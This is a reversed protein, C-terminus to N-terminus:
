TVKTYFETPEGDVNKMRIRYYFGDTENLIILQPAPGQVGGPSVGAGSGIVTGPAVNDQYALTTASELNQLTLSSNNPIATVLFFGAGLVFVTQGVVAWSSNGVVVTVTALEAPMAFAALTTTFANVGNSGAAGPVGTAGTSGPINITVASECASTGCGAPSPIGRSM